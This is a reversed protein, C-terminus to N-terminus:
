PIIKTNEVDTELSQKAIKVDTELSQKQTKLM